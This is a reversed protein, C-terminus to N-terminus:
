ISVSWTNKMHFRLFDRGPIIARPSSYIRPYQRRCPPQSSFLSRGQWPRSTSSRSPYSTRPSRPLALCKRNAGGKIRIDASILCFDYTFRLAPPTVTPRSCSFVSQEQAVELEARLSAHRKRPLVQIRGNETRNDEKQMPM